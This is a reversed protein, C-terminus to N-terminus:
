PIMEVGLTGKQLRSVEQGIKGIIEILTSKKRM